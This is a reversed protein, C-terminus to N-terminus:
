LKYGMNFTFKNQLVSSSSYLEKEGWGWMFELPGFPSKLTIGFGFSTKDDTINGQPHEAYIIHSVLFRFYTSNKRHYRYELGISSINRFYLQEIKYGPLYDSNDNFNFLNQPSDGKNKAYKGFLRYTDRKNTHYLDVITSLHEYKIIENSKEFYVQAKLGNSPILVNDLNDFILDSSFRPYSEYSNLSPKLFDYEIELVGYKSLLLGFGAGIFSSTYDREGIDNGEDEIILKKKVYESKVFPFVPIDLTRSPYYLKITNKTIGAFQIQYEFKFGPFWNYTAHIDAMGILGYQNDWRAGLYLQKPLKEKINFNVHVNSDSLPHIEYIITEFYGLSYVTSIRRELERYNLIDGKKYGLLRKIFRTSLTNNGQVTIKDFIQADCKKVNFVLQYKKSDLEVLHHTLQKFDGSARILGIKSILSDKKIPVGDNLNLVKKFYEPSKMSNGFIKIEDIFLEDESAILKIETESAVTQSLKKLQLFIDINQNASQKGRKIMELLTQKKFNSSRLGKLDPTILFDALDQNEYEKDFSHITISQELVDLATSLESYHKRSTGVNVALVIDAGMEKAIDVPLNNLVGGDVMLSDGWQVPSFITPVSITSRIARSLSGRNFIVESGTVIDVANCRFPIPLDDFSGINEYAHMWHSFLLSIKQGKIFGSPQVPKFGNLGFELQYKGSDKKKFYPLKDRSPEDSFIENWDTKSVLYEIEDASYGISYLVGGVAGMSTGVIVDIPIQLSDLMRLTGIHAVGRSGGGSLVLGIKPRYSTESHAFGMLITLLILIKSFRM